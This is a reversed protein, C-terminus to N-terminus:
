QTFSTYVRCMQRGTDYDPCAYITVDARSMTDILPHAIKYEQVWRNVDRFNVFTALPTHNVTVLYIVYSLLFRPM